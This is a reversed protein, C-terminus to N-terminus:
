RSRRPSSSRGRRRRPAPRRSASSPASPRPASGRRPRGGRGARRTRATLLILLEHSRARASARLPEADGRRKLARVPSGNELISFVYRDGVFGSLSSANDTTGTKARVFGYAPGTRMRYELTGTEGAIPLSPRSVAAPRPRAVDHAAAHRPRPTDLPRAALARLRRGHPGRRAARGGHAATSARGRARGGCHRRRGARRRGGEAADRGYFNDSYVDMHRVLASLPASVVYGLPGGPRPSARRRRATCASAPTSSTVASSSRRSLARATRRTGGTGAATSSSRRSRRRSTSTSGRAELRARRPAHRVM